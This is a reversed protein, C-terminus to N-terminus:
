QSIATHRGSGKLTFSLDSLTLIHIDKLTKIEYKLYQM